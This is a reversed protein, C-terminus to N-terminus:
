QSDGAYGLERSPSVHEKTTVCGALCTYNEGAVATKLSFVVTPCRLGVARFISHTVAQATDGHNRRHSSLLAAYLIM